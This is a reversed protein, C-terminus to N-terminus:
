NCRVSFFPSSDIELTLSQNFNSSPSKLSHRLTLAKTAQPSKFIGRLSPKQRKPVKLFAGFHPSPKGSPSKQFRRSTLVKNAAQPSKFIGRLSPKRGKPVKSFAADSAFASRSLLCSQSQRPEVAPLSDRRCSLATEVGSLLVVFSNKSGIIPTSTIPTPTSSRLLPLSSQQQEIFLRSQNNFHQLFYVSDSLTSCCLGASCTWSSALLTSCSLDGAPSAVM